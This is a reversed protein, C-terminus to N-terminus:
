HCLILRSKRIAQPSDLIGTMTAAKSPTSLPAFMRMTDDM